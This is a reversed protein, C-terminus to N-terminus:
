RTKWHATVEHHVKEPKEVIGFCNVDSYTGFRMYKRAVWLRSDCGQIPKESIIKNSLIFWLSPSIATNPIVNTESVAKNLNKIWTVVSDEVLEQSVKQTELASAREGYISQKKRAQSGLIAYLYTVISRNLLDSRQKTNGSSTAPM